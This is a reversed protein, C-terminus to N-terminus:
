EGRLYDGKKKALLRIVSAVGQHHRGEGLQTEIAKIFCINLSKFDEILEEPRYLMLPDKPGGSKKGFQRVSFFEAILSGGPKLADALRQHFRRRIEPVLHVFILGIADYIGNEPEFQGLDALEYRNFVVGQNAALRLAKKRAADSFDVADALWGRQAAYVANRGEGEGPLLIRGSPLKELESAFFENPSEGYIFEDTGFRENWFQHM